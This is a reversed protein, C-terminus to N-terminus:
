NHISRERQKKQKKESQNAHLIEPPDVIAANRFSYCFFPFFSVDRRFPFFFLVLSLTSIFKTEQDMARRRRRREHM